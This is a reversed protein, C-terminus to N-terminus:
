KNLRSETAVEIIQIVQGYGGFIIDPYIGKVEFNKEEGPNIHVEKHIKSIKDKVEQIVLERTLQENPTQM